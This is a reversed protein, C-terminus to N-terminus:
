RAAVVPNRLMGISEIEVEPLEAIEVALHLNETALKNLLNRILAQYKVILEREVRRVHALGFLDARTGRIRRMGALARFAPTFWPGLM